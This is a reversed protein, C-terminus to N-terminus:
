IIAEESKISAENILFKYTKYNILNKVSIDSKKRTKGAKVQLIALLKMM